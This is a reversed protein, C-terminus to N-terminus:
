FMSLFLFVFCKVHYLLHDSIPSYIKVSGCIKDQKIPRFPSNQFNVQSRFAKSFLIGPNLRETSAKHQDRQCVPRPIKIVGVLHTYTQDVLKVAAYVTTSHTSSHLMQMQWTTVSNKNGLNKDEGCHGINQWPLWSLRFARRVAQVAKCILISGWTHGGGSLLLWDTTLLKSFDGRLVKLGPWERLLLVPEILCKFCTILCVNYVM